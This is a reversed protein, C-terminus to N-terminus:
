DERKITRSRHDHKWAGEDCYLSGLFGLSKLSEPQLAHHLLMTDHEAGFVKIGMTRWLFAIDYHGNQFLKPITRDALCTRIIHWVEREASYTDWYNRSKARRDYFPVVLATRTSPAFGIETICEGATEIDVSLLRCGAVHERFFRQVDEVEPEIWIEREPRRLEPFERERNIKSLDIIAIPRLDWQQLIASPHYTPLIKTGPVLRTSLRTCGRLDRIGTLGCLAWLPTNGLAVVLNPRLKDIDNHLRELEPLFEARVYSGSAAIKAVPLRPWGSIGTQRPGMFEGLNNGPPHQSFVNMRVFNPHLQWVMEVQHPDNTEWYKKIYTLDASTLALAGSEDLMRLLEVGSSGVFPTGTTVENAGPAEGLLVTPNM